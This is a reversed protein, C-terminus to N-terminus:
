AVGAPVEKWSGYSWTSGRVLGSAQKLLRRRDRSPELRPRAAVRVADWTARIEAVNTRVVGSVVPGGDRFEDAIAQVAKFEDPATGPFGAEIGDVGLRTLQRAIVLRHEPELPERRARRGVADPNTWAVLHEDRVTTDFLAVRETAETATRDPM